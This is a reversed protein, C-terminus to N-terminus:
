EGIISHSFSVLQDTWIYTLIMLLPIISCFGGVVWRILKNAEDLEMFYEVVLRGKIFTM